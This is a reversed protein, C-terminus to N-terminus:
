RGTQSRSQSSTPEDEANQMWKEAGEVRKGLKGMSYRLTPSCFRQLRM